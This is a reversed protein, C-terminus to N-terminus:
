LSAHNGAVGHEALTVEGLLDDVGLPVEQPKDFLVL